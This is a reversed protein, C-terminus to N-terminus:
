FCTFYTAADCRSIVSPLEIMHFPRPFVAIGVVTKTLFSAACLSVCWGVM